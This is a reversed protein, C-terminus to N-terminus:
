IHGNDKLYLYTRSGIKVKRKTLPSIIWGIKLSAIKTENNLNNLDDECIETRCMPCINHNKEVHAKLCEKHFGHSCKLTILNNENENQNTGQRIDDSVTSTGQRIDDSVTSTGQRIDDSVTSTGEYIQIHIYL